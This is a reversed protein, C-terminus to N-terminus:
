GAKGGIGDLEPQHLPVGGTKGEHLDVWKRWTMRHVQGGPSRLRLKQNAAFYQGTKEWIWGSAALRAHREADTMFVTGARRGPFMGKIVTRPLALIPEGGDQPDVLVKEDVNVWSTVDYTWGWTALQREFAAKHEAQVGYPVVSPTITALAQLPAIGLRRLERGLAARIGAVGLRADQHWVEILMVGEVACLQRKLEDRSAQVDSDHWRGQYEFAVKREANFGDLELGQLWDPRVKPFPAELAQELLSRVIQESKLPNCQPCWTGSAVSSITAEWVHDMSCHWAVKDAKTKPEAQHCIGGDWGEALEIATGLRDEARSLMCTKPRCNQCGGPTTVWSEARKTVLEGCRCRGTVPSAAVTVDGEVYASGGAAMAAQVRAVTYRQVRRRENSTALIVRDPGNVLGPFSTASDGGLHDAGSTEELFSKGGAEGDAAALDTITRQLEGGSQAQDRRSAIKRYKQEAASGTRGLRSAAEEVKMGSNIMRELEAEEEPSWRSPARLRLAWAKQYISERQRAGGLRAFVGLVGERPYYDVLTQLEHESWLQQDRSEGVQLTSDEFNDM